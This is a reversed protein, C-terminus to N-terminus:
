RSCTPWRRLFGRRWGPGNQGLGVHAVGLSSPGQLQYWVWWQGVGELERNKNFDIRRNVICGTLEEAAAEKDMNGYVTQSAQFTQTM